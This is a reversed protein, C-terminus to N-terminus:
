ARSRQDSFRSIVVGYTTMIVLSISLLAVGLVAAFHPNFSSGVQQYTLIPLIMVRLGGMLAPTVYASVAMAFVLLSGAAIGPLSLPLTVEIFTRVPGAGLNAAAQELRTDIKGIVGTLSLVMFPVYIHVLAIVIGLENYMLPLPASILGLKQLSANIVGNDSLLTIWAYTRVVIGTLMPTMVAAILFLRVGRSQVRATMYALPYGIILAIVTTWLAIRITTWAVTLHYEDEFLRHYHALTFSVDPAFLPNDTIVSMGLMVAFPLIFFALFLATGPLLGWAAASIGREERARRSATM